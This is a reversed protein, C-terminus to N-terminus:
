GYGHRRRRARRLCHLHLFRGGGQFDLDPTYDPFGGPGPIVTGNSPQTFSDISIPDGDPDSDNALVDISVATEVWTTAADDVAVPPVNLATKLAQIECWLDSDQWASLQLDWIAIGTPEPLDYHVEQVHAQATTGRGSSTGWSGLWSPLGMLVTDGPYGATYGASQQFSYKHWTTGGEYLDAYGMSHINDVEGVWDSWWDHNPANWIYHFSNVTLIKGRAKLEVSLDHIFLDFAVRDSAIIEGDLGELDIDIGDLNLREMEAVLASVLTTRNTDFASRALPWNWNGDNNYITLLIDVDNAQGWNVWWAVDTDAPTYWEHDAYKITGDAIPTWFQLGVRTLADPVDCAGLDAQVATQSPGISYPPVWSM